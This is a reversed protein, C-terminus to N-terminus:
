ESVDLSPARTVQNRSEEEATLRPSKTETVLSEPWPAEAAELMINAFPESPAYAAMANRRM